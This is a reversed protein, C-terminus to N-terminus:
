PRHRFRDLRDLFETRQEATLAEASDGVATAVIRSMTDALAVEQVRLKEIAARDITPEALIGRLEERDARHKEIVPFLDDIATSVIKQVRDQQEATADLRHLAFGVFFEAHEHAEEATPPGDPGAGRHALVGLAAEAGPMTVGVAFAVLGAGFAGLVLGTVFGHRRRRRDQHGAQERPQPDSFQPNSVNHDEM